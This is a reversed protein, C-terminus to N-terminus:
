RSFRFELPPPTKGEEITVEATKTGANAHRAEITYKGPPLARPFTWNGEDDTTAFYPHTVVHIWANMWPHIDCRARLDLQPKRFQWRFESGKSSTTKNFGQGSDRTNVNHATADSNKFIIPQYARVGIVHPVYVCNDQDITVPETAYDFTWAELGKTVHVFVDRLGGSASVVFRESKMGEGANKCFPDAGMNIPARKPVNGDWHAKGGLTTGKALSEADPENVTIEPYEPEEDGGCSSVALTIGAALAALVVLSVLARSPSSAQDTM